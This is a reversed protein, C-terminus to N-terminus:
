DASTPPGVGLDAVLAAHDTGPLRRTRVDRAAVEGTLLVHDIAAFPPVPQDTPWTFDLGAGVAAAADVPGRALLARLPRHDLTANFDGAVVLATDGPERAGPLATIEDSWPSAAAGDFVPAGPHTAVVDLPAAPVEVRAVVQEFVSPGLVVPSPALPYRSALGTGGADARPRTLRFPLDVFLGAVELRREADPTLEQLSLVDVREDRVLAVLATADAGGFELNATAVVVPRRGVAQDDFRDPVARPVVLGVLVLAALLGVAGAVWRRTALSIGALVLGVVAAVPTLALLVFATGSGTPAWLWLVVWGATLVAALTLVAGVVRSM